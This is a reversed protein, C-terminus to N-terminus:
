VAVARRPSSSRARLWTAFCAAELEEADAPLSGAAPVWTARAVDAPRGASAGLGVLSVAVPSLSGAGSRTGVASGSFLRGDLTRLACGARLEGPRPCYSRD